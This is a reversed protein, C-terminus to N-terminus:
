RRLRITGSQLSRSSGDALFVQASFTGDIRSDSWREITLEGATVATVNNASTTTSEGYFLTAEAASQPPGLQLSLTVPPTAATLLSFTLSIQRSGDASLGPAFLGRTLVTDNVVVNGEPVVLPEAVGPVVAQIGYSVVTGGGDGDDTADTAAGAGGLRSVWAPPQFQTVPESATDDGDGCAGVLLGLSLVLAWPRINVNRMASM